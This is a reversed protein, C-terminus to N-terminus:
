CRLSPSPDSGSITFCFSKLFSRPSLSAAVSSGINTITITITIGITISIIITITCRSWASCIRTQAGVMKKPCIHIDMMIMELKIEYRKPGGGRHGAWGFISKNFRSRGSSFQKHYKNLKYYTGIPSLPHHTLKCMPMNFLQNSYMICTCLVHVYSVYYMYIIEM